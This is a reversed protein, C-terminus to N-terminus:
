NQKIEYSHRNKIDAVLEDLRRRYEELVLTEVIQPRVQELAKISGPAERASVRVVHHGRETKLTSVVGVTLTQCAAWLAPDDDANFYGLDGGTMKTEQDLSHEEAAAAFSDGQLLNQRLKDADRRSGLLIHQARIEAQAREFDAQHGGYYAEIAESSVDLSRNEFVSDLFSAVVLDRRAQEVLRQVRANGAVNQDLAEHFLLEQEVWDDIFHRRERAALEEDLQDPLQDELETATLVTNGVRAVVEGEDRMPTCACLLAMSCAAVLPTQIM